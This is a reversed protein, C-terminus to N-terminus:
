GLYPAMADIVLKKQVYEHRTLIHRQFIYKWGNGLEKNKSTLIDTRVYLVLYRALDFLPSVQM